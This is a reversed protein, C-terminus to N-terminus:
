GRFNVRCAVLPLVERRGTADSIEVGGEAVARWARAFRLEAGTAVVQRTYLDGSLWSKRPLAVVWTGSSDKWNRDLVSSGPDTGKWELDARATWSWRDSLDQRRDWRASLSNPGSASGLSTGFHVPVNSPQGPLISSSPGGTWPEVRSVQLRDLTRSGTLDRVRLGLGLAWKNGWGDSLFGLLNQLDDLFLEASLEVDRAPRWTADFDMQRNDPDGLRHESNIIPLVPVLYLPELDREISVVAESWAFSWSSGVWRLRHGYLYRRQGYSDATLRGALVVAEVPGIRTSAETLPFPEALGSLMMPEPLSGWAVGFLGSRIRVGVVEAEVGGELADVTRARGAEGPEAFLATQYVGRGPDMQKTWLARNSVETLQTVRSWLVVRSGLLAEVKPRLRGGLVASVGGLSDSTTQFHGDASLDMFLRDHRGERVTEWAPRMGWGAPMSDRLALRARLGRVRSIDQQDQLAPIAGDLCALIAEGPWPRRDPLRCDGIGDLRELFPVAPDDVPLSPLVEARVPGACVLLVSLIALRHAIGGFHYLM